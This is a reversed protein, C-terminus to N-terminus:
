LHTLHSKRNNVTDKEYQWLANLSRHVTFEQIVKDPVYSIFMESAGSAQLSYNTYEGDVKADKFMNKVM